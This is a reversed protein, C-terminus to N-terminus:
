GASARMGTALGMKNSLGCIIFFLHLNSNIVVQPLGSKDQQM